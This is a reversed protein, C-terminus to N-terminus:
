NEKVKLRENSLCIFQNEFSMGLNVKRIQQKCKGYNNPFNHIVSVLFSVLTM